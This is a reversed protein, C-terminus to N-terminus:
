RRIEIDQCEEKNQKSIKPYNLKYHTALLKEIMKHTIELLISLIKCLLINSNPIQNKKYLDTINKLKNLNIKSCIYLKKLKQKILISAMLKSQMLLTKKHSKEM